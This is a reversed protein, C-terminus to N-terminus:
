TRLFSNGRALNWNPISPDVKPNEVMKNLPSRLTKSTGSTDWKGLYIPKTNITITNIV